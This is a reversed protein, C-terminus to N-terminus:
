KFYALILGIRWFIGIIFNYCGYKFGKKFFVPILGLFFNFFSWYTQGTEELFSTNELFDKNDHTIIVTWRARYIQKKIVQKLSDPYFHKVKVEKLFKVKCNNKALKISLETDNGSFYKRGTLGIKKLVYKKIAFNKTDIKGIIENKNMKEFKELSVVRRCRSWFDDSINQEFGQVADYDRIAKIMEGIWDNSVICDSDTMLIIEGEAEKEGTNRAAGRAKYPEFLYKVKEDRDQFDKIIDKTKDTSNNDVVIVEYNIYTQDLISELCQKLTKESNYAPIIISVASKM